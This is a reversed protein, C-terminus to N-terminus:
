RRPANVPRNNRFCDRRESDSASVERKNGKNVESILAMTMSMGSRYWRITAIGSDINPNYMRAVIKPFAKMVGKQMM